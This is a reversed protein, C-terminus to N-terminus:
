LCELVKEMQMSRSGKILIYADETKNKLWKGAQQPSSFQHFSHQLKAFDGGVLIVQQWPYKKIEEIIGAHEQVSNEGLEAM